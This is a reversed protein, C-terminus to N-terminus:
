FSKDLTKHSNSTKACSWRQNRVGSVAEDFVEMVPCEWVSESGPLEGVGGSIVDCVVNRYCSSHSHPSHMQFHLCTNPQAHPYFQSHWVRDMTTSECFDQSGWVQFYAAGSIAALGEEAPLQFNNFELYMYLFKNSQNSRTKDKLILSRHMSLSCYLFFVAPFTFLPYGKFIFLERKYTM